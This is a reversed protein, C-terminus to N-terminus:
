KIQKIEFFDRFIKKFDEFDSRLNRLEKKLKENEESMIKMKKEMPIMADNLGNVEIILDNITQHLCITNNTFNM